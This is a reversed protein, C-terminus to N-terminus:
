FYKLLFGHSERCFCKQLLGMRAGQVSGLSVTQPSPHKGLSHLPVASDEASTWCRGSGRRPEQIEMKCSKLLSLLLSACFTQGHVVNGKPVKCICVFGKSCCPTSSPKIAGKTQLGGSPVSSRGVGVSLWFQVLRVTKPICNTKILSWQWLMTKSM